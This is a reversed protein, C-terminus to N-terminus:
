AERGFHAELADNMRRSFSLLSAHSNGEFHRLKFNHWFELLKNSIIPGEALKWSHVDIRLYPLHSYFVQGNISFM